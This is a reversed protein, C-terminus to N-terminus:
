DPGHIMRRTAQEIDAQRLLSEGILVGSFGAKKLANIDRSSRIGSESVVRIEEPIMKKMNFSTNFDVEFTKLNRNNIGIIAPEISLAKLLDDKDHVEVIAQMGLALTMGYLNELEAKELCTTILLVFDAGLEYSEYIQWPHLIFDKRLVPLDIRNKVLRIYNKDGGFFNKETVVSVASAGGNEYAEAIAVPDFDERIVGKSPSSRKIEAITFFSDKMVALIDVSDRNSNTVSGQHFSEFNAKEEARIRDTIKKLISDM